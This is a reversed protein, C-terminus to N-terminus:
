SNYIKRLTERGLNISEAILRLSINNEEKLLLILKKLLPTNQKLDELAINNTKLFDFIIKKCLDKKTVEIDMFNFDKKIYKHSIEKYNSYPYECPNTCIGARVPNNYIYNICNYLYEESFIAESQYRNRFVYGVRNYKKNYYKGYTTNLRLMYKSLDNVKQVELLLHMHNNMICYALIKINHENKLKYM